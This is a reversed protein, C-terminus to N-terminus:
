QAFVGRQGEDRFWLAISFFKRPTGLVTFEGARYCSNSLNFNLANYHWGYIPLINSATENIGNPDKDLYYLDDFPYYGDNTADWLIEAPTKAKLVISLQDIYAQFGAGVIISSNKISKVIDIKVSDRIVEVSGDIFIRAAQKTADYVFCFHYSQDTSIVSTDRIIINSRLSLSLIGNTFNMTITPTLQVLIAYMRTKTLLLIGEIHTLNFTPQIYIKTPIDQQL